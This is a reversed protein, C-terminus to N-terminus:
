ALDSLSFEAVDRLLEIFGRAQHEVTLRGKESTALTADGVAGDPNLDPAMWGFAPMGTPGLHKYRKRMAIGSSVFYKADEMRVLDPRLHLVISTEIDGAHIGHADEEQTYMGEPLGFKRWSTHVALMDHRVRLERAVVALLDANGGHSNVFIMKRLGARRVSEGLEIWMALAVNASFTLTGPSRVHENSKGVPMIPLFLVNLDLPLRTVVERVMGEGITTDTSVPMHPGHQEHAAIPAVAITTEPDLSRFENTTLDGWFFKRM